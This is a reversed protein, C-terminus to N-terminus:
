KALRKLMFKTVPGVAPAALPSALAEALARGAGPAIDLVESVLDALTEDNAAAGKEVENQLSWLRRRAPAQNGPAATRRVAEQVPEFVQELSGGSAGYTTRINKGITVNSSGSIDGVTIKDGGVKDGRVLDGGINQDRGVFDGGVRLSGGVYAGGGTDIIDRGAVPGHVDGGIVPGSIQVQNNQGFNIGGYQTVIQEFRQQAREPKVERVSGEAPLAQEGLASPNTQSTGRYLAVAMTGVGKLVTLEPEQVKGYLRQVTQSVKEFLASYLDFASIFGGRPVMDVGQMSDVLAQAFLTLKGGGVYSLQTERCATIIVRGSGTALLADATTNPLGKAGLNDDGEGGLTPSINGAHCANFIMVVREAKIKKVKELLAAQSVGSGTAVKKGALKADHSVLYYDGDVGYEGHGSYFVLATNEPGALEALRELAKLINERTAEQDKLVLVHNAPYGCFQPNRLVDAVAQADEATAQRPVNLQQAPEYTSVGIVLAYGQKFGQEEAM